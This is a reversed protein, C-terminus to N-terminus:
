RGRGTHPDYTQTGNGPHRTPPMGPIVPASGTPTHTPAPPPPAFPSPPAFPPPPGFPPPAPPPPVTPAPHPVPPPATPTNTPQGPRDATGAGGARRRGRGALVPVGVRRAARPGARGGRRAGPDAAEGAARHVRRAAPDGRLLIGRGRGPRDGPVR